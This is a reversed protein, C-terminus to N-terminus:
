ESGPISKGHPDTTPHGQRELLKEQLNESTFHELKEATAHVHDSPLGLQSVLYSEWLRHSRVIKRAASLGSQTLSLVGDLNRLLNQDRLRVLAKRFQASNAFAPRLEQVGISHSDSEETMRYLLALIDDSLIQQSIKHSRFIRGLIGYRPAMLAIGFLLLGAVSVMMGAANLSSEFGLLLPAATALFYGLTVSLFSFFLSLWVQGVFSDTLLRASAPPCIIMAIVLISGVIKFSAVVTLAVLIMLCYHLFSTSFGVSDCFGPDFSSLLLEKRLCWITFACLLFISASASLESPLLSLTSFTFLESFTQPPYWFISELQGHLLCDADLDVSRASAQEILLIGLAFLLSFVVGISASSEVNGYKRIMEILLTTLVGAAAAGLFVPLSARSGSLLFALVIGPLVAHSIADGMLSMKRLVLYNGILACSLSCLLAALVAPFDLSLISYISANM